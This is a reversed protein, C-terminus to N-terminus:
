CTPLNPSMMMGKTLARRKVVAGAQEFLVVTTGIAQDLLFAGQDTLLWEGSLGMEIPENTFGRLRVVIRKAGCKLHLLVPDLDQLGIFKVPRRMKAYPNGKENLYTEVGLGLVMAKTTEENAYPHKRM